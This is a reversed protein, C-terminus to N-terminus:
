PSFFFFSDPPAPNGDDDVLFGNISVWTMVETLNGAYLVEIILDDDALGFSTGVGAYGTVNLPTVCNCNFIETTGFPPPTCIVDDSIGSLPDIGCIGDSADDRLGLVNLGQVPGSIMSMGSAVQDIPKDFQILLRPRPGLVAGFQPNSSVIRPGQGPQVTIDRTTFAFSDGPAASGAADEVRNTIFLSYQNLGPQLSLTGPTYEFTRPFLTANPRTITPNDTGALPGDLTAPSTIRTLIV